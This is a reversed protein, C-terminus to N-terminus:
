HVKANRGALEELAARLEMMRPPKSLVRDVHEPLEGESQLRQGWGTLLIVPTDPATPKIAAAVTRGDVNPMGLDTIVAEFPEGRKRAGFFENIGSQGGDATTVAHGDAALVDSLSRLLMPDDDVLLVRLPRPARVPATPQRAEQLSAPPFYLRVTTGRGVESEIDLDASHRQVMGYVMALGLGTGREGKTTFFPELCRNRVAETMGVGTDGVEIFAAAARSRDRSAERVRTRLTLTGGNPMADVANLVLNTLADRIESEAGLIPPMDSALDSKLEIVVGSEQPMDRWRARTLEIVQRLLVNLDVPSVNPEADRPRYFMRMRAVTGAVDEVARQIVTLYERAEESLARDRELLTQAYLAAPSLANNIDHAIGSAMQGLARLREQQMVAQQSQRLDEYAQHLASYLQAQHTALALHESLQRLFECDASSFSAADRRAAVLVGFVRNEVSLPAIVLARLGGRALRAPFPFPSGSVDPEHVLQGQLCRRLGNEDVSFRAREALGMETALPASRAGISTVTLRDEPREYSCICAFDVPLQGELAGVVVQFISREDHRETIARTIQGLLNLRALQAQLKLQAQWRETVDSAAGFWETIEGRESVMPIARSFTWGLTGDARRVRHELEFTSKTRIAEGIAGMVLTQDDPHIYKQLWGQSPEPTDAIFGQGDLQRMESWDPSMRYVVDSTALVFTRLLRESDRLSDNLRALEATRERVRVELEDRAARLAQEARRRGAFDRRIFILAIGLLAFALAGTGIITSQTVLVSRRTRAQRETLLAREAAKMEDIIRRIEGDIRRSAGTLIVARASEFGENRQLEIVRRLQEMRERLLAELRDLRRQQAANDSTLRLLDGYPADISRVAREYPELYAEDGTIVYGREATEGDTATALVLQLQALVEDTHAVWGANESLREASRFSAVAVVALCVLAVAFGAQVKRETSLRATDAASGGVAPSM